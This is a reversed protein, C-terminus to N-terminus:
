HLQLIQSYFQDGEGMIVKPTVYWCEHGQNSKYGYVLLVLWLGHNPLMIADRNPFLLLCIGMM